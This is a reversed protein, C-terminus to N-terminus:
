RRVGDPRDSTQDVPCFGAEAFRRCPTDAISSLTTPPSILKLWMSPSPEAHCPITTAPSALTTRFTEDPVVLELVEGSTDGTRELEEAKPDPNSAADAHGNGLAPDLEVPAAPDKEALLRVAVGNAPVQEDSVAEGAEVHQRPLGRRVADAELRARDPVRDLVVPQPVVHIVVAVVVVWGARVEPPV